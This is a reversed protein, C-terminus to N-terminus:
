ESRDDDRGLEADIAYIPPVLEITTADMRRCTNGAISVSVAGENKHNAVIWRM